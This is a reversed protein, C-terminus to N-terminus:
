SSRTSRSLFHASKLVLDTSSDVRLKAFVSMRHKHVTSTSIQLTKSIEKTTRGNLLLDVVERERESLRQLLNTWDFVASWDSRSQKLSQSVATLFDDNKVPRQLVTFVGSRVAGVAEAVSISTEVLVLPIAANRARLEALIPRVYQVATPVGLLLCGPVTRTYERVFQATSRYNQIPLHWPRLWERWQNLEALDDGIVHILASEGGSM